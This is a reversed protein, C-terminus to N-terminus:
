AAAGITAEGMRQGTVMLYVAEAINTAHDGIRELHQGVLLLDLAAPTRGARDEVEVTLARKLTKWAADVRDDQAAVMLAREADKDLFADVAQRVMAAGDQGMAEITPAAVALRTAAVSEARRAVNKAYDGIRELLAAIRLAAVLMRLDDAKPARLAMTTVVLKEVQVQMADLAADQRVVQEALALDGSGIAALSGRVGAAAADGMAAILARLESIEEDFASLTHRDNAFSELM